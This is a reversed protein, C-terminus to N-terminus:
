GVKRTKKQLSLKMRKPPPEEEGDEPEEEGEEPEEGEEEPEEQDDDDSPLLQVPNLLHNM